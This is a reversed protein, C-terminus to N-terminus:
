DLLAVDLKKIGFKRAEKKNWMFIDISQKIPVKKGKVKKTKGMLDDIVFIGYNKIYIKRGFVWGEKFLDRSVAVIGLRVRNMSSTIHPDSDCENVSPTYASITLNKVRKEKLLKSIRENEEKLKQNEEKFKGNEIELIKVEQKQKEIINNKYNDWDFFLDTLPIIALILSGIILWLIDKM